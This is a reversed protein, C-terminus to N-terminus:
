THTAEMMAAELMQTTKPVFARLVELRSNLENVVAKANWQLLRRYIRLFEADASERVSPHLPTPEHGLAIECILLGVAVAPSDTAALQQWLRLAAEAQGALMLAEAGQEVLGPNQRHHKVAEGTWDLAFEAFEPKKLAVMGGLKWVRVDSPDEAMLQHLVKLAEVDDNTESLLRAYDFRIVRSDPEQQLAAQFARAAEEWRKLAALCLGLCHHPGAKLINENVLTLARKGRKEVCQQMQEGGDKYLKSEICALGLLWHMTATLGHTRALPSQLIRAVEAYNRSNLSHTAYQTLLAERLEPAVQENPLSSMTEFAEKYRELGEQRRGDRVLELGLNMLLNPEGPLEEIALELLRLNRAVKGRSAVIEKTYGHHLLTADGIKNELGWEARRVELSSFVQEHVRGVYFLGPANRFLRPVYNVGEEEHERDIMPLRYGIATPDKMLRLLKERDAAILEEDADLFLVWDGRAKELAANRAASFDDIWLISHVEAGFREAIQLTRDTSGTDVLVIQRALGQVSELCKGLFREENKTILCVTLRSHDSPSFAPLEISPGSGKPRSQLFQRAPKWRPALSRAHEALQKARSPHGAAQALEALLLHAEPHFPRCHIAQVTADWAGALDGRKILERVSQVAGVRAVTPLVVGTQKRKRKEALAVAASMRKAALEVICQRTSCEAHESQLFASALGVTSDSEGDNRLVLLRQIEIAQKRHGQRLSQEALLKWAGPHDPEQDLVTTIATVFEESRNLRGSVEALRVQIEPHRPQHRAAISYVDHAREYEETAVHVRGRAIALEVAVGGQAPSENPLTPLDKTARRVSQWFNLGSTNGSQIWHLIEQIRRETTHAKLLQARANGAISSAFAPDRRLQRLHAAFDLPRDPSFLLIEEGAKFLDRTRPRNPVEWSIVPRGAAMAEFVRGAYGSFLSPLNAVALGHQLGAIWRQFVEQRIRQTMWAHQRFVNEDMADGRELTTEFARQTDDFLGPWDGADEPSQNPRYVLRKLEPHELWAQRQGYLQGFFLARADPVPPPLPQVFREPVSQPWWLASVQGLEQLATADREDVAVVHTLHGLRAEVLARRRRLKPMLAYAQEDYALSEMLFGVRKPAVQELWRLSEEDWRGHVLEIWVQDFSHGQCFSQVHRFWTQHANDSLGRVMPFTTVEAGANQLAELLGWQVPYAVHRAEKWDGIELPLFLIKPGPGVGHNPRSEENLSVATDLSPNPITAQVDPSRLPVADWDEVGYNAAFIRRRALQVNAALADFDPHVYLGRQALTSLEDYAQLFLMSHRVLSVLFEAARPFDKSKGSRILQRAAQLQYFPFDGDLECAALAAEPNTRYFSRYYHLSALILRALADSRSSVTGRQTEATCQDFYARYNFFHSFYDWPFVDDMRDIEWGDMPREITEDLLRLAESVEAPEGFHLAARIWNFRLVLANPFRRTALRFLDLAQTLLERRATLQVRFNGSYDRAVPQYAATAYELVLERTMDIIPGAAPNTELSNAWKLLGAERTLRNVRPSQVWGKLLISRKQELRLAPRKARPERPKAALFTLFRFYQQAVRTMEFEKRVVAAGRRARKEFEPWADLVRGVAKPLTGKELDYTVVGDEEGLFLQLVSGEQVAIAAGMALSELGRTPMAGPHRVYTFGMKTQGLFAQYQEAKIFGNIFKVALDPQELVQHLLRAKDPHYPHLATGSIFVDIPREGTPAPPLGKGLGFAKPFTAVPGPFLKTVDKWETHDTVVLEDLLQLWPHVTQIHIDYDATHGFTPCPL